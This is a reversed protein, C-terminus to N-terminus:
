LNGMIEPSGAGNRERATITLNPLILLAIYCTLNIYMHM